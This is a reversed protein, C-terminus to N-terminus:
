PKKAVSWAAESGALSNPAFSPSLRVRSRQSNISLALTAGDGEIIRGIQRYGSSIFTYDLFNVYSGVLAQTEPKVAPSSGRDHGSSFKTCIQAELTPKIGSFACPSPATQCKGAILSPTM